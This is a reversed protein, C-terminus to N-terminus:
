PWLTCESQKFDLGRPEARVIQAPTLACGSTIVLICVSDYLHSPPPDLAAALRSFRIQIAGWLSINEGGQRETFEQDEKERRVVLKKQSRPSNGLWHSCLASSDHGCYATLCTAVSM